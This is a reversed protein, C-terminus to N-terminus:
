FFFFVWLFSIIFDLASFLSVSFLSVPPGVFDFTPKQFLGVQSGSDSVGHFLMDSEMPGKM